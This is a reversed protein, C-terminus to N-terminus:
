APGHTERLDYYIPDFSTAIKAAQVMHARAESNAMMADVDAKSRWQAYNAVRTKDANVHLNASVFGPQASMGHMTANSLVSMLEDAKDPEVIFTNILVYYGANPDLKTVHM